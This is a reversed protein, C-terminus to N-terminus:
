VKCPSVNWGTLFVPCVCWPAAAELRQRWSARVQLRQRWSARKALRGANAAPPPKKM